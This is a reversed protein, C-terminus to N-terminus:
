SAVRVRAGQSHLLERLYEDPDAAGQVDRRVGARLRWRSLRVGDDTYVDAAREFVSRYRRLMSPIADSGWSWLGGTADDIEDVTAAEVDLLYRAALLPLGPTLKRRRLQERKFADWDESWGKDDDFSDRWPRGFWELFLLEGRGPEHIREREFADGDHVDAIEAGDLEYTWGEWFEHRRGRARARQVADLTVVTLAQLSFRVESSPDAGPSALRLEHIFVSECPRDVTVDLTAGFDDEDYGASVHVHHDHRPTVARGRRWSSFRNGGGIGGWPRDDWPWVRVHLRGDVGISM